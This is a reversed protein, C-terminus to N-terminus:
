GGDRRHRSVAGKKRRVIQGTRDLRRADVDIGKLRFLALANATVARLRQDPTLALSCADNFDDNNDEIKGVWVSIGNKESVKRMAM